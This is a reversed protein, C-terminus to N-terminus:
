KREKKREEGTKFNNKRLEKRGEKSEKEKRDEKPL